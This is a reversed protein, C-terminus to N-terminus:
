SYTTKYKRAEIVLRVIESITSDKGIKEAKYKIIGDYNLSGAIVKKGLDKLIPISEGTIFSEDL